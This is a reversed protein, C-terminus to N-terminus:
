STNSLDKRIAESTNLIVQTQLLDVFRRKANNEDEFDFNYVPEWYVIESLPINQVILTSSVTVGTLQANAFSVLGYSAGSNGFIHQVTIETSNGSLIQAHGVNFGGSTTILLEGNAFATNPTTMSVEWTEIANTNIVWDNKALKYSGVQNRANWVPTWYKKLGDPLSNYYDTSSTSNVDTPWSVRWYSIYSQANAMSGYRSDIYDGFEDQNLHWEYYPDLVGNTLYILWDLSSDQYVNYALVDARMKDTIEIPYFFDPANKSAAVVGARKSLDITINNGYSIRPFKSFYTDGM